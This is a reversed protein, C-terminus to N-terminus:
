NRILIFVFLSQFYKLTHNKGDYTRIPAEQVIVNQTYNKFKKELWIACNKWAKSSIVRPGFNVQKQIYSYASDANFTPVEIKVKLKSVTETKQKPENSCAFIFLTSIILVARM